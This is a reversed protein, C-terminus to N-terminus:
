LPFLSFSNSSLFAELITKQMITNVHNEDVKAQM